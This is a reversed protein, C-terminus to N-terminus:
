LEPPLLRAAHVVALVDAQDEKVRYIIRYPRVLVERIDDRDYELVKGGLLPATEIQRSRATLRDIMRRAYTPSDRAICAYIGQLHALATETWHVKM